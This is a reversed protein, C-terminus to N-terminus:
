SGEAEGSIALIRAQYPEWVMSLTTGEIPLNADGPVLEVIPSPFRDGALRIEREVVEDSPNASILYTRGNAKRVTWEVPSALAIEVGAAAPDVPPAKFAPIMDALEAAVAAVIRWQEPNGSPSIDDGRFDFLENYDFKYCNFNLGWSGHLVSLYSAFRIEERTPYRSLVSRPDQPPIIHPDKGINYVQVGNMVTKGKPTLASVARGVNPVINDIVPEFPIRLPDPMFIDFGDMYPYDPGIVAYSAVVVPHVPDSEKVARYGRELDEPPIMDDPEDYLYWGWLAPHEKLAQVRAALHSTDFERPTLEGTPRKRSGYPAQDPYLSLAMLVALGCDHAADLYKLAAEETNPFRDPYNGEFRFGQVLNFGAAAIEPFEAPDEVCYLGIPFFEAAAENARAAEAQSKSLSM